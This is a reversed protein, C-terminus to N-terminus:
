PASPTDRGTVREVRDALPSDAHTSLFRRGVAVAQAHQGDLELAEVRLVMAEPALAGNPFRAAYDRLEALARAGDKERVGARARQILRVEERLDGATNALPADPVAAKAAHPARSHAETRGQVAMAHPSALENGQPAPSAPDAPPTIGPMALAPPAPPVAPTEMSEMAARGSTEHRPTLAIAALGGAVVVALAGVWTWPISSTAGAPAARGDFLHGLGAQMRETLEPSPRENAAGDMLLREFETAGDNILREPNRM